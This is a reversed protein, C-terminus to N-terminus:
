PSATPRGANKLARLVRIQRVMYCLCSVGVLAFLANLLSYRDTAGPTFFRYEYLMFLSGAQAFAMTVIRIITIDRIPLDEPM